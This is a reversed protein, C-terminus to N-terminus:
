DQQVPPPAIALLELVAVYAELDRAVDLYGGSQTGSLFVGDKRAADVRIMQLKTALYQNTAKTPTGAGANPNTQMHAIVAIGDPERELRGSVSWPDLNLHHYSLYDPDLTRLREEARMIRRKLANESQAILQFKANLTSHAMRGLTAIDILKHPKQYDEIGHCLQHDPIRHAEGPKFTRDCGPNNCSAKPPLPVGYLTQYRAKHNDDGRQMHIDMAGMHVDANCNPDGALCYPCRVVDSTGPKMHPTWDPVM